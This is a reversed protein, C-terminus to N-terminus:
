RFQFAEICKGGSSLFLLLLNVAKAVLLPYSTQLGLWLSTVSVDIKGFRKRVLSDIYMFTLLNIMNMPILYLDEAKDVLM